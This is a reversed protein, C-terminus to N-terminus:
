AVTAAASRGYRAMAEVLAALKANGQAASSLGYSEISYTATDSVVEGDKVIQVTIVDRMQAPNLEEFAIVYRPGNTGVEYGFDKAEIEWTQGAATVVAKLGDTTAGEALAFKFNVTVADQLALGVSKFDVIGNEVPNLSLNKEDKYEIAGQYGLAKQAENLDANALDDLKYGLVDQAAAGYNLIDVLLGMLKSYNANTYYKTIQNNCYTFISYESAASTYVEGEYEAELVATVIDKMQHPAAEAFVYEYMGDANVTYETVRYENDNFNFVVVPNSYGHKTFYIPDVRFIISINSQLALTRNKIKLVRPIVKEEVTEGCVSCKKIKLGDANVTAETVVEWDGATHGLEPVEDEIYNDGCNL